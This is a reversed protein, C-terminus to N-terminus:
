HMNVRIKNTMSKMDGHIDIKIHKRNINLSVGRLQLTYFHSKFHHFNAKGFTNEQLDRTHIYVYKNQSM